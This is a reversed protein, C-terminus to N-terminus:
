PQITLGRSAEAYLAKNRQLDLNGVTCHGKGLLSDPDTLAATGPNRPRTEELCTGLFSFKNVRVTIESPDVNDQRFPPRSAQLFSASGQTMESVLSTGTSTLAVGAFGCSKLAPSPPRWNPQRPPKAASPRPNADCALM